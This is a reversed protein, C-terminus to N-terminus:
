IDDSSQNVKNSAAIGQALGEAGSYAQQAATQVNAAAQSVAPKVTTEVFEETNTAARSVMPKVKVDVFEGTSAAINQSVEVTSHVLTSTTASISEKAAQLHPQMNEYAQSAM